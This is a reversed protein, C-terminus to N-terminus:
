RRGFCDDLPPHVRGAVPRVDEIRPHDLRSNGDGTRRRASKVVTLDEPTPQARDSWKRPPLGGGRIVAKGCALGELGLSKFPQQPHPLLIHGVTPWFLGIPMLRSVNAAEARSAM